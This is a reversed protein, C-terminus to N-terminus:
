ERACNFVSAVRMGGKMHSVEPMMEQQPQWQTGLAPSLPWRTVEDAPSRMESLSEGVDAAKCGVWITVRKDERKSEKGRKGEQGGVGM